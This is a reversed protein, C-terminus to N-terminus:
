KTRASLSVSQNSLVAGPVDFGDALAKKILAKDLKVTVTEVKFDVPIAAEDVILVSSANKRLSLTVAASEIKDRGADGMADAIMGRKTNARDEFRKGREAIEKARAKAAAAMDEDHRASEFTSVMLDAFDTIGDASGLFHEDHENMEPFALKLREVISAYYAAATKLPASM